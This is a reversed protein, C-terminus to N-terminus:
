WVFMASGNDPKRYQQSVEDLRNMEDRSLALRMADAAEKAHEPKSAGPIAVVMEGQFNVLWSLAVQALTADHKSAIEALVNILEQSAKLNRRLMGRRALPTRKLIDPNEHFKGTLLGSALPGWCIITIGLEKAADLIGNSEIRRDFLNYRVQNSALTLGRKELVAHARRMREADFNSVGVSRIKGAEVLDAM